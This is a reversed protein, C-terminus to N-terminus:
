KLGFVNEGYYTIYLFGDDSKYKEYVIGMNVSLVMMEKDNVMLYLATNSNVKLSNKVSNIFACVTMDKDALFKKSGFNDINNSKTGKSVYVPVKNSYKSLMKTTMDKRDQFKVNTRFKEM